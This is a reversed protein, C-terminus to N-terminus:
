QSSLIIYFNGGATDGKVDFSTDSALLMFDQWGDGAQLLAHNDTAAPVLDDGFVVHVDGTTKLSVFQPVGGPNRFKKAGLAGSTFTVKYVQGPQMTTGAALPLTLVIGPRVRGFQAPINRM